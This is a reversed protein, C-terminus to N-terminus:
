PSSWPCVDVGRLTDRTLEALLLRHYDAVIPTAALSVERM